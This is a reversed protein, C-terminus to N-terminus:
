QVNCDVLNPWNCIGHVTDYWLGTPCKFDFRQSESVCTYFRSCDTPHRFTGLEKCDKSGSGPTTTKTSSETPGNTTSPTSTSVTSPLVGGNLVTNLATLLPYKRSGCLGLFDDTEMSWVMAGGLGNSLVYKAKLEISQVTDIGVWQNSARAYPVEQTPEWEMTWKNTLQQECFENYGLMGPTNTFPGPMGPGQHQAGPKYDAPNALSFSRGYLPMGLILKKKPAGNALWYKISADVNL